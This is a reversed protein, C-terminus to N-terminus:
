EDSYGYRNLKELMNAPLPEAEPLLSIAKIRMRVSILALVTLVFFFLSILIAVTALAMAFYYAYTGSELQARHWDVTLAVGGSVVPGLGAPVLQLWRQRQLINLRDLWVRKSNKSRRLARQEKWESTRKKAM